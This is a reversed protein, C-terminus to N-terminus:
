MIDAPTQRRGLWVQLEGGREMLTGRPPNQNTVKGFNSPVPEEGLVVVALGFEEAKEMAEFLDLGCVNPVGESSTQPGQTQAQAQTTTLVTGFWMHLEKKRKNEEEIKDAKEKLGKLENIKDQISLPHRVM